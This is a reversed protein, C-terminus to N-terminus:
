RPQRSLIFSKGATLQAVVPTRSVRSMGSASALPSDLRWPLLLWCGLAAMPWRPICIMVFVPQRNHLGPQLGPVM